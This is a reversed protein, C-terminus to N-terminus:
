RTAFALADNAFLSEIDKLESARKSGNGLMVATGKITGCLIFARQRLEEPQLSDNVSQVMRSMRDLLFEEYRKRCKDVFKNEVSVAWFQYLFQRTSSKKVDKILFRMVALFRADDDGSYKARLPDLRTVYDSLTHEILSHFLDEKNQFYYLLNGLSVGATKAVGRMTMGAYGYKTFEARAASLLRAVTRKGSVNAATGKKTRIYLPQSSPTTM